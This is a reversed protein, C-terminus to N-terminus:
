RRIGDFPAKTTRKEREAELFAVHKAQAEVRAEAQMVTEPRPNSVKSLLAVAALQTQEAADLTDQADKVESPNAAGRESLATM